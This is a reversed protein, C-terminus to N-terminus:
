ACNEEVAEILLACGFLENVGQVVARVHHQESGCEGQFCPKGIGSQRPYARRDTGPPQGLHPEVVGDTVRSRQSLLYLSRLRSDHRSRSQGVLAARGSLPMTLIVALRRCQIFFTSRNHPM